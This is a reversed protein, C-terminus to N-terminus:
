IVMQNSNDSVGIFAIVTGSTVTGVLRCFSCPYIISSNKDTTLSFLTDHNNWRALAQASLPGNPNANPDNSVQLTVTGQAPTITGFGIGQGSFNVLCSIGNGQFLEYHVPLRQVTQGNLTTAVTQGAALTLQYVAM